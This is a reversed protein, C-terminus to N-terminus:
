LEMLLLVFVKRHAHDETPRSVLSLLCVLPFVVVSLCTMLPSNNIVWNTTYASTTHWQIKQRLKDLLHSFSKVSSISLHCIPSILVRENTGVSWRKKKRGRYKWTFNLFFNQIDHLVIRINQQVQRSFHFDINFSPFNEFNRNNHHYALFYKLLQEIALDILVM